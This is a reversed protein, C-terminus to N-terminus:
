QIEEEVGFHQAILEDLHGVPLTSIKRYGRQKLFKYKNAKLQYAYIRAGFIGLENSPIGESKAIEAQADALSNANYVIYLTSEYLLAMTNPTGNLHIRIVNDKPEM